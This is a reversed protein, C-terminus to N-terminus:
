QKLPLHKNQYKQTLSSNQTQNGVSQSILSLINLM